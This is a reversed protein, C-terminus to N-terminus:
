GQKLCSVNRWQIFSIATWRPIEELHIIYKGDKIKLILGPFLWCILTEKWGDGLQMYYTFHTDCDFKRIGPKNSGFLLCLYKSLKLRYIHMKKDKDWSLSVRMFNAFEQKGRNCSVSVYEWACCKPHRLIEPQQSASNLLQSCNSM